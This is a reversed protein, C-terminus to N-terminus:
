FRGSKANTTLASPKYMNALQILANSLDAKANEALLVKEKTTAHQQFLASTNRGRSDSVHLHEGSKDFGFHYTTLADEQPITDWLEWAKNKVFMERNGEPTSAFAFRVQQQDDVLFGSFRDHQELLELEGTALNLKYVDHWQPNRHNLGIVVQEPFDPSANFLQTHVDEFPTLDKSQLTETDVSYLHWNEDGDKDQIYLVHKNTYAWMYFQIGRGKDQTIAKANNPEDRPALWINLVGDLDALYTIYRGDPSLRVMAKDPNGFFLKRPILPPQTTAV